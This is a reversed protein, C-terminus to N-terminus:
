DPRKTDASVSEHAVRTLRRVVSFGTTTERPTTLDAAAPAAVKERLLVWGGVIGAILSLALLALSTTLSRIMTSNITAIAVGEDLGAAVFLDKPSISLPSYGWIRRTGDLGAGVVTGPKGAGLMDQLPPPLPPALQRGTPDPLPPTRMIVTGNRDAIVVAADSGGGRTAILRSIWELDIVVMAVGAIQGDMGVFPMAAPLQLRGSNRGRVASGLTFGGSSLSQRFFDRTAVTENPPLSYTACVPRGALDFAALASYSPVEAMMDVLITRCAAADRQGVSTRRSMAILLSQAGTLLRDYEAAIAQSHHLAEAHAGAHLRQYDNFHQVGILGALPLATLAALGFIRGLM